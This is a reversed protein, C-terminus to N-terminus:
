YRWLVGVSPVLPLWSEIDRTIVPTGDAAEGIRYRACCPNSRSLANTVEAFVDLAGHSLAFTRTLRADITSYAKFRERNREDLRLAPNGFSDTAIALETTPWGTRYLGALTATWPGKSWTLGVNVVHRQDWSRPVAAGDIRDEVRSWTYGLWGSWSGRQPFKLFLEAGEARASGADIRARDFEAEPFLVVPDFVNEFRPRLSEYRKRYLELRLDLGLDFQRDLSVIWHNAHPAPSFTDIGDEVPLENIDQPQFYRGWSARLLTRSDLRYVTAFRPSLYMRNKLLPATDNYDQTDIRLGAQFTLRRALDLRGDWYASMEYGDPRPALDRALQVAPSGPFPYDPQQALNLRYDYQGWLRQAEIGFRHVVRNASISTDFKVGTVHFLRDDFVTASRRGPEEINGRRENTLDTYSAILRSSASDSWQHEFTAWAYVNRYKADTRQQGDSNLALISDGSLLMQLAGQTRESFRYDIRGFGDSYYPRGFDRESFQALDGANGRRGSLLFHGRGEDFAHSTLASAHFLNLGAEYYHEQEPRVSTAEVIASMRDGYPASFGGSYFEMGDIVRSDLVSVPSLFNKLHFPEYLRLGDLVIASEGPEGGRVAALSSFGNIATGPLRQLARLTEDALRPTDKVQDQTVSVQSTTLETALTYRSSQVVIEMPPDAAFSAALDEEQQPRQALPDRVVAYVRPAAQSLTLRHPALIERALEAGRRATPEATVRLDPPVLQNNYIFTLGRARLEDLVEDM